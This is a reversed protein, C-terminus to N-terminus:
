FGRRERIMHTRRALDKDEDIVKRVHAFHLAALLALVGIAVTPWVPDAPSFAGFILFFGWLAIAGLALVWFVNWVVTAASMLASGIHTM